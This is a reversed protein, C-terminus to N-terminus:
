GRSMTARWKSGTVRSIGATTCPTAAHRRRRECSAILIRVTTQSEGSFVYRDKCSKSSTQVSVLVM